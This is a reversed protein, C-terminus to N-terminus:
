LLPPSRGSPTTLYGPLPHTFRDQTYLLQPTLSGDDGFVFARPVVAPADGSYTIKGCFDATVAQPQCTQAHAIAVTLAGAVLCLPVVLALLGSILSSQRIIRQSLHIQMVNLFYESHSHNDVGPDGPIGAVCVPLPALETFARSLGRAQAIM